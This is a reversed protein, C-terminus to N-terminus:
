LPKGERHIVDQMHSSALDFDILDISIESDISQLMGVARFYDRGALGWVAIDVDSRSHFLKPKAVSGFLVIKKVNFKERLISVAKRVVKRARALRVPASTKVRKRKRLANRYFDLETPSLESVTRFM